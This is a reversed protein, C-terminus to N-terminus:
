AKSFPCKNNSKVSIHYVLYHSECFTLANVHFLLVLPKNLYTGFSFLVRSRVFKIFILHTQWLCVYMYVYVYVYMWLSFFWFGKNWNCSALTRHITAPHKRYPAAFFIGRLWVWFGSVPSRAFLCASVPKCTKVARMGNRGAGWRTGGWIGYVLRCMGVYIVHSLIFAVLTFPGSLWTLCASLLSSVFYRTRAAHLLHWVFRHWEPLGAGHFLQFFIHNYACLVLLPVEVRREIWPGGEEM